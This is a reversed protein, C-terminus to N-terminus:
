CSTVPTWSEKALKGIEEASVEISGIWGEKALALFPQGITRELRRVVPACSTSM